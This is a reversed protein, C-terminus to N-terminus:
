QPELLQVPDPMKFHFVRRNTSAPALLPARRVLFLSMFLGAFTSSLPVSAFTPAIESEVWKVRKRSEAKQPEMWICILALCRLNLNILGIGRVPFRPSVGAFTSFLRGSSPTEAKEGNGTESKQKRSETRLLASSHAALGLLALGGLSLGHSCLGMGSGRLKAARQVGAAIFM